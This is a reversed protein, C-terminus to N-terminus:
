APQMLRKCLGLEYLEVTFELISPWRKMPITQKIACVTSFHPVTEATLGLITTVSPMERFVDM